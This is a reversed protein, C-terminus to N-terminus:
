GQIDPNERFFEFVTIKGPFDRYELNILNILSWIDPNKLNKSVSIGIYSSGSYVRKVNLIRSKSIFYKELNSFLAM